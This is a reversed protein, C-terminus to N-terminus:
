RGTRARVTVRVLPGGEDACCTGESLLVRDWYTPSLEHLRQERDKSYATIVSSMVAEKVARPAHPGLSRMAGEIWVSLPELPAKIHPLSPCEATLTEDDPLWDDLIATWSSRPM